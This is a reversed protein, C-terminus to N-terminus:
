RRDEIITESIPKGKIELPRELSPKRPPHEPIESIVGADLLPQLQSRWQEDSLRPPNLSAVQRGDEETIRVEEGHSVLSLYEDVKTVFESRIATVM